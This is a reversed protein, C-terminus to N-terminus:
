DLSSVAEIFRRTIRYGGISAETFSPDNLLAREIAPIDRVKFVVNKSLPFTADSEQLHDKKWRRYIPMSLNVLSESFYDAAARTWKSRKQNDEEAMDLIDIFDRDILRTGNTHTYQGRTVVLEAVQRPNLVQLDAAPEYDEPTGRKRLKKCSPFTFGSPLNFQRKFLEPYKARTEIEKRSAQKYSHEGNHHGPHPRGPEGLAALASATFVTAFAAFSLVRM